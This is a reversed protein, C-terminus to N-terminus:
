SQNPLSFCEFTYNFGDFTMIWPSGLGRCILSFQHVLVNKRPVKKRSELRNKRPNAPMPTVYSM